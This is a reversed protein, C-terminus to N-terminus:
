LIDFNSLWERYSTKGTSLEVEDKYVTIIKGDYVVKSDLTKEILEM